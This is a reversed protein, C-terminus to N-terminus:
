TAIGNREGASGIRGETAMDESESDSAEDLRAIADLLSQEQDKLLKRAKEIERMNPNSLVREVETVVSETSPIEIHDFNRNVGNEPIAYDKIPENISLRGRGRIPGAMAGNNTPHRKLMPGSPGLGDRNSLHGDFEWRIDEPAMDCLRVEEYTEARTGMDYVLSHEGTVPNYRTITAEYFNNDDPWRTYVKHNILSSPDMSALALPMPTKAKKGRASLPGWKASPVSHSPMVPSQLGASQSPISHSPRQRKATPGPEADYLARSGRHLGSPTGGAQRLERMRRITGDENVRNLLERHEEDSVRLEKRLETILSEKEWSIADSQVKFARLVGTYADQEVRHVESELDNNARMYPFAGASARGNGSLSRGRLGRNQTPPLDDDTGSSDYPDYGAAKM